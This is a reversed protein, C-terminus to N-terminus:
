VVEWVSIPRCHAQKNTAKTYGVHRIKGESQLAKIVAGYVRPEAPIKSIKNNNQHLLAHQIFNWYSALGEATFTKKTKIWHRACLLIEDYYNQSPRVVRQLADNLEQQGNM